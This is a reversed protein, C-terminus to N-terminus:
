IYSKFRNRSNNVKGKQGYIGGGIMYDLGTSFELIRKTEARDNDVKLQLYNKKWFNIFFSLLVYPCFFSHCLSLLFYPCFSLLASLYFSPFFVFLFSLFFCKWISIFYYLFPFLFHPSLISLSDFLFLTWLNWQPPFYCMTSELFDNSVQDTQILNIM